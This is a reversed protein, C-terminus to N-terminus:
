QGVMQADRSIRNQERKIAQCALAVDFRGLARVGEDALRICFEPRRTIVGARVLRSVFCYAPRWYQKTALRLLQDVGASLWYEIKKDAAGARAGKRMSGPAPQQELPM